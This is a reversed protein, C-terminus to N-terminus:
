RVVEKSTKNGRRVIYIGPTPDKVRMGQLNYYEPEKEETIVIDEIATPTSNLLKGIRAPAYTVM